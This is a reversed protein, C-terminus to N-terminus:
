RYQEKIEQRAVKNTSTMPLAETFEIRRPYKYKALDDKVLQQLEERLREREGEALTVSPEIISTVIEGRSADPTGIVVATGVEDHEELKREVEVPSVRYGSSIILDDGRGAFWYFGDEDYYGTDGTDLWDGVFARSTEEPDDWYETMIAPDPSKVAIRGIEEPPLENGETDIIGIEHGPIVRGLSLPEKGTVVSSNTILLDAESQGFHENLEVSPLYEDVWEFMKDTTPEGGTVIVELNLDYTSWPDDLEEMMMHLMTPTLLTHTVSHRELVECVRVPDFGRAEYGVVTHGDRWAPFTTDITGAVWSWDAPTFFVADDPFENMIDFSLHSAALCEHTHVVGKPDGTTGSTFTILCRDNPSTDRAPFSGERDAIVEEFYQGKGNLERTVLVTIMEFVGDLRDAMEANTILTSIGAKSVRYEVSDRGMLVSIPVAMAGLKYVALHSILTLPSQSLAIGVRDGPEIDQLELWNAFKSAKRDIEEFTFEENTGDAHDFVLATRNQGLHTECIETAINYSSPIEWEFVELLEEYGHHEWNRIDINAYNQPV